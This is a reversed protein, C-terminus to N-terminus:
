PECEAAHQIQFRSHKQLQSKLENQLLKYDLVERDTQKVKDTSAILFPSAPGEHASMSTRKAVLLSYSM